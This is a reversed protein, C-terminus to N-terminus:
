NSLAGTALDVGAAELLKRLPDLRVGYLASRDGKLGVDERVQVASITPAVKRAKQFEACGDEWELDCFAILERACEPFNTVFTEYQITRFQPLTKEFHDVLRAYLGYRQSLAEFDNAFTWFKMMDQRWIAFANELPNRRINIIKANPFIHAILASAEINLLNKDTFREAIGRAPAGKMYEGALLACEEEGLAVAGSQYNARFWRNFLNPMMPMEGGALVKSHAAIVSEVLTSGCRPLGVIFIPEPGDHYSSDRHEPPAGFLNIIADTWASHGIFDYSVM